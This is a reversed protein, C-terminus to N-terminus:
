SNKFDSPSIRKLFNRFSLDDGRVREEEEDREEGPEDAQVAEMAEQESLEVFRIHYMLDEDVYIRVNERLALAIGDSPRCDIELTRGDQDLILTAFYTKNELRDIVLKEVRAGLDHLVSVFLDHTLPRPAARRIVALEISSAELEGIWVPLYKENYADKLFVVPSGHQHDYRLGYFDVLALAM